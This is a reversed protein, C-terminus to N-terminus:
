KATGTPKDGRNMLSSPLARLWQLAAQTEPWMRRLTIIITVILVIEIGKALYAVDFYPGMVMWGLITVTAYAALAMLVLPLFRRLFLASGVVAAALTVYGLANLLLMTGGVYFHIYGTALTLGVILVLLFADIYRKSSSM